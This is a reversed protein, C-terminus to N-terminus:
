LITMALHSRLLGQGSRLSPDRSIAVPKARAVVEDSQWAEAAGVCTPLAKAGIPNLYRM